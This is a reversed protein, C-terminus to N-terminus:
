TYGGTCKNCFYGCECENTEDEDEVYDEGAYDPYLDVYEGHLWILRDM